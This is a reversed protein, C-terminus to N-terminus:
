LIKELVMLELPQKQIGFKEDSPFPKTEGTPNYGHREYWAVLEKRLSIVTMYVSICNNDASYKEAEALLQKGIGSAQLVPSVTLFGLYMKTDQKELYVCGLIEGNGNCCKLFVASPKQVLEKLSNADIRLGDLLDAETTWGKKSYEGRYASNILVNLYQVDDETATSINM